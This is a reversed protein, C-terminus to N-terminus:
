LANILTEIDGVTDYFLKAGVTEANTSSSSVSSAISTWSRTATGSSISLTPVYTGDVSPTTTFRDTPITGNSDLLRYNTASSSSGSTSLGVSLTGATYNTGRGIQIAGTASTKAYAGLGIGYLGGTAQYGLSVAYNGQTDAYDGVAVCYNNYAKYNSSIYINGVYSTGGLNNILAPQWSLTSGNTSLFKGSNGSQSPLSSGPQVDIRSWTNQYGAHADVINKVKFTVQTASGYNTVTGLTPNETLSIASSYNPAIISNSSVVYTWNSTLNNLEAIIGARNNWHYNDIYDIIADIDLNIVAGSVSVDSITCTFPVTASTSATCKYFYGNTYTSDTTGTYEVIRDIMSFDSYAPLPNYQFAIRTLREAPITGDASIIEFNGNENGFKLTNADSNAVSNYGGGFQFAGKATAQANAGIALSYQGSATTTGGIAIADQNIARAVTGIAISQSGSAYSSDGRTTGTGIVISDNGSAIPGKLSSSYTNNATGLAVAGSGTAKTKYGIALSYNQTSTDSNEGISLAHTGSSRNVLAPAWSPDTGDTTLFEGSHGTQSPLSSGVPQVNVQTWSYTPSAAGDSVCKYFYGNTYTGTTGIYQYIKDLESASATPLTTVQIIQGGSEADTIMYLETPVKTASDYQQQTMINLKVQPVNTTTTM